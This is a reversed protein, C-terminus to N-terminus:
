RAEKNAHVVPKQTKLILSVHMQIKVTTASMTKFVAATESYLIARNFQLKILIHHFGVTDQSQLLQLIFDTIWVSGFQFMFAIFDKSTFRGFDM